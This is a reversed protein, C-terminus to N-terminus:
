SWKKLQLERKRVSGLSVHPESYVLRAGRHAKTWEAGKGSNHTAIRELLNEAVGIYLTGGFTRLIYVFYM